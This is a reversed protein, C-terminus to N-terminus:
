IVETLKLIVLCVRVCCKNRPVAVPMVQFTKNAHSHLFWANINCRVLGKQLSSAIGTTHVFKFVRLLINSDNSLIVFLCRIHSLLINTHRIPSPLPSPLLGSPLGLCLHSSILISRWCTPHPPAHVPNIHSLIPVPPLSKHTCYHVKLNWLVCPNEQSASLRSAEWSPSQEVSDTLWAEGHKSTQIAILHSQCSSAHTWHLHSPLDNSLIRTHSASQIM